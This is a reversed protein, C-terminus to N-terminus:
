EIVEDARALLTPPITLGLAKATKLNVVLDFKTPQEVPLDAPKAGKFIKDVFVASRRFLDRFDAGYTLLFGAEAYERQTSAAPLRNRLAMVAIQDRHNFLVGDSLVVFGQARERAMTALAQELEELGRAEAPVLTMGLAPAAERISTLRSHNPAVDPNWLIGVRSLNPLTEKLLELRKGFIEDGTDATFGTVNGGPRALSAVLGTGIPDISNTMIIPITTTAKMAAVTNPNVGTVIVDVGLRVLGTALAPLRELEGDAFRYEIVVNEGVRYGLSRLGEEFAKILHQTQERSAITLYGVRYVRGAPQQARVALPWTAATGGLALIFARRKM